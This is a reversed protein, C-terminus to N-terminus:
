SFPTTTDSFYIVCLLYLLIFFKFFHFLYIHDFMGVDTCLNNKQKTKSTQSLGHPLFQWSLTPLSSSLSQNTHSCAAPRCSLRITNQHASVNSCWAVSLKNRQVSDYTVLYIWIAGHSPIHPALLCMCQLIWSPKKWFDAQFFTNFPIKLICFSMPRIILNFNM